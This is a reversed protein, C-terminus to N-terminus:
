VSKLLLAWCLITEGEEEVGAGEEQQMKIICILNQAVTHLVYLHDIRMECVIHLDSKTKPLSDNYKPSKFM